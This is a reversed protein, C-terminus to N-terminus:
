GGARETGRMSVTKVQTYDLVAAAGMTRGFGSHKYGGFPGDRWVPFAEWAALAALDVDANGARPVRGLRQATAPNIVDITGGGCAPVWQGGILLKDDIILPSAPDASTITM